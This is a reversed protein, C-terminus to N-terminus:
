LTGALTLQAEQKTTLVARLKKKAADLESQAKERVAQVAAIKTKLESAPANSEIAQQLAAVAPDPEPGFRNGRPRANAQDGGRQDREANRAQDGGPAGGRAGRMMMMMGMGGFRSGSAARQKEMVDTLLPGIVKMEENSAGLQEQYREMMRQRMQEPDFNGFGGRGGQGAQGGQQGGRGQAMVNQPIVVLAAVVAAFVATKITRKM